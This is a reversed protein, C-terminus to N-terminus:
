RDKCIQRWGLWGLDYLKMARNFRETPRKNRTQKNDNKQAANHQQPQTDKTLNPIQCSICGTTYRCRDEWQHPKFPQIYTPTDDCRGPAMTLDALDKAERRLSAAELDVAEPRQLALGASDAPLLAFSAGDFATTLCSRSSKGLTVCICTEATAQGVQKNRAQRRYSPLWCIGDNTKFVCCSRPTHTPTHTLSPYLYTTLARFRWSGVRTPSGPHATPTHDEGLTDQTHRRKEM